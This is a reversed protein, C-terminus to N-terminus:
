VKSKKFPNKLVTALFMSFSKYKKSEWMSVEVSTYEIAFDALTDILYQKDRDVDVIKRYSEILIRCRENNYYSGLVFASYIMAWAFEEAVDCRFKQDLIVIANAIIKKMNNFKKYAKLVIQQRVNWEDSTYTDRDPQLPAFSLTSDINKEAKKTQYEVYEEATLEGLAYLAHACDYRKKSDISLIGKLCKAMRKTIKVHKDLNTQQLKTVRREIFKIVDDINKGPALVRDFILEYLICGVSWVDMKETFKLNAKKENKKQHKLLEPSRYWRTVIYGTGNEVETDHLHRSLGFDCLWLDDNKILINEPKIDRHLFMHKRMTFLAKFMTIAWKEVMSGTVNQSDVDHLNKEARKMFIHFGNNNYIVKQMPVFYHKDKVSQLHRLAHLERLTSQLKDFSDLVTIKVADNVSNSYVTGYSGSGLEVPKKFQQRFM